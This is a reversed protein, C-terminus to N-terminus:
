LFFARRLRSGDQILDWPILGLFMLRGLQLLFLSNPLPQFLENKSLYPITLSPTPTLGM